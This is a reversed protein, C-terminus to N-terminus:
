RREIHTQFSENGLTVIYGNELEAKENPQLKIGEIMTGNTSRNDMIYYDGNEYIITAHHRSVSENSLVYDMNSSDKGITFPTIDVTIIEGNINRTLYLSRKGELHIKPNHETISPQSTLVTTEYESSEDRFYATQKTSGTEVVSEDEDFESYLTQSLVTTEGESSLLSTEENQSNIEYNAMTGNLLSTEGDDQLLSTEAEDTLLSTADESHNDSITYSRLFDSFCAVAREDDKIRRIEKIFRTLRIDKLHIVSLLKLLFDRVYLRKNNEVPIYVFEYGDVAKFIYEKALKINDIVLANDESIRLLALASMLIEIANEFILGSQLQTLSVLDGTDYIFHHHGKDSKYSCSCLEKAQASALLNLADLDVAKKENCIITSNIFGNHLSM